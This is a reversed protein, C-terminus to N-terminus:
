LVNTEPTRHKSIRKIFVEWLTQYFMVKLINQQSNIKRLFFKGELLNVKSPVPNLLM